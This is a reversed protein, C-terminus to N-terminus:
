LLEYKLLLFNRRVRSGLGGGEGWFGSAPSCNMQTFRQIIYKEPRLWRIINIKFAADPKDPM